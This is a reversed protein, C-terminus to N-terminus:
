FQCEISRTFSNLKAPNQKTIILILRSLMNRTDSTVNSYPITFHHTGYRRLRKYSSQMYLCNFTYSAGISCFILEKNFGVAILPKNCSIGINQSVSLLKIDILLIYLDPKWILCYYLIRKKLVIHYEAYNITCTYIINHDKFM